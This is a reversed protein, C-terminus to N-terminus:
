CSRSSNGLPNGMAEEWHISSSAISKDTQPGLAMPYLSIVLQVTSRRLGISSRCIASENGKYWIHISQVRRSQLAPGLPSRM